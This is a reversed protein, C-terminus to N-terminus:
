GSLVMPLVFVARLANKARIRSTLGIALLLAIVNVLVVSVVAIGITFGYAGLIAPDSFLVAYNTFGVFNWEGFGISDTFSFFI